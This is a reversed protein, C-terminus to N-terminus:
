PGATQGPLGANWGAPGCILGAGVVRDREVPSRGVPGFFEPTIFAADYYGGFKAGASSTKVSLFDEEVEPLYFQKALPDYEPLFVESDLLETLQASISLQGPLATESAGVLALPEAMPNPQRGLYALGFAPKKPTGPPGGPPPPDIIVELPLASVYGNGPDVVEIAGVEYDMVVVAEPLTGCLSNDEPYGITVTPPGDTYGAGSDTLEVCRVGGFGDLVAYGEARVGTTGKSGSPPESFTVTPAAEFGCGGDLLRVALLRGTPRLVARAKAPTGGAAGGAELSPPALRVAPPRGELYGAGPDGVDIREVSANDTEQLLERLRATPQNPAPLLCFLIAVQRRAELTTGYRSLLLSCLAAAGKPGRFDPEGLGLEVAEAFEAFQARRAADVAAPGGGAPLARAKARWLAREGPDYTLLFRTLYTVFLQPYTTNKAGDKTFQRKSSWVLREDEEGGEQAILFGTQAQTGQPKLALAASGLLLASSAKIFQDRSLGKLNTRDNKIM